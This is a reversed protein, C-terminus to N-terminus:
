TFRIQSLLIEYIFLMGTLAYAVTNVLRKVAIRDESRYTIMFSVILSICTNRTRNWILDIRQSSTKLSLLLDKTKKKRGSRSSCKDVFM